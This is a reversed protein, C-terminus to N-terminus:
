VGVAAIMLAAGRVSIRASRWFWLGRRCDDCRRGFSSSRSYGPDGADSSDRVLVNSFGSYNRMSIGLVNTVNFVNFIELIPEIKLKGM